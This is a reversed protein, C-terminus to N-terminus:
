YRVIKQIGVKGSDSIVKIVYMGSSLNSIDFNYNNEASSYTSLIQRKGKADYLVITSLNEESTIFLEGQTPNPFLEFNLTQKEILTSSPLEVTTVATNTLIPFNFDFFINAENSIEDGLVLDPLTKIKFVLYGNNNADEFPLMINDFVFEVENGDIRVQMDHSADIIQLTSIDFRARDIVDTVLVNVADATGTNEFRIQYHLYEGIMEPLISSGELCRKDNPDFSNVVEQSLCAFNDNRNIDLALPFATTKIELRDGDNLPPDAMPSNLTFRVTYSISEYIGLELYEWSINGTEMSSAEPDAFRFEMLNSPYTFEVEGDVITTGRNTLILKYAVDFGPRAVQLPVISIEVDQVDLKPTICFNIESIPDGLPAVVVISDPTIEFFDQNNLIPNIIYKGEYVPLSFEGNVNSIYVTFDDPENVEYKINSLPKLQNECTVIGSEFYSSGKVLFRVCEPDLGGDTITWSYVDIMQQRASEGLCYPLPCHFEVNEQLENKVWGILLSDYNEASFSLAEEFMARMETVNSVDWNGVNQNFSSAKNFMYSMDTVQSVDWEKLDQNFSSALFFLESMDHVNSVDWNGIDQNFSSAGSFLQAMDDVSSVDWAAIDQNFSSALFFMGHMDDVKSVDWNGIDQNFLNEELFGSFMYRMETVNSVDWNGIDQNFSISGDFTSNMETVNSVDWSGIDQNFSSARLFLGSMDTVSSVDWSGIDQNFSFANSFMYKMDTVNSVDWDGIDQNFSLARRFMNSMNTVNAVNWGGLDQDFDSVANFMYSMDTVNSVDWDGLDQNFETAGDFMYSMDTVNSVDWDGLDGVVTKVGYFMEKLSEVKSLVPVDTANVEMQNCEKFASEMSKWIQGGWQEVSFLSHKLLIPSSPIKIKPYDGSISVTFLGNSEYTHMADGTHGSTVTGDGWDVSYNYEYDNDTGITITKILDTIGWTTIYADQAVTSSCFLLCLTQLLFRRMSFSHKPKFSNCLTREFNVINDWM